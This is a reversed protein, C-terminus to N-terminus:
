PGPRLVFVEDRHGQRQWRVTFPDLTDITASVYHPSDRIIMDADTRTILGFWPYSAYGAPLGSQATTPSYGTAAPIRFLSPYNYAGWMIFSIRSDQIYHESLNAATILQTGPIWGAKRESWFKEAQGSMLFARDVTMPNLTPPASQAIILACSVIGALVLNRFLPRPLQACGWLGLVHLFFGIFLVERFGWRLNKFLPLASLISAVFAGRTALVCSLVVLGLVGWWLRSKHTCRSISCVQVFYAGSWALSAAYPAKLLFIRASPFVLAGAPAFVFSSVLLPFAYSHSTDNQWDTIESRPTSTFANWMTWLLPALILGAVLGGAAYRFLPFWSNEQWAAALSWLGLLLTSFILPHLHGCTIQFLWGLVVWRIGAQKQIVGQAIMSLGAMNALFGIWSSGVSLSYPNFMSSVAMVVIHCDHLGLRYRENLVLALRAFSATGVLLCSINLLEPIWIYYPTLALPSFLWLFPNFLQLGGPDRLLHYNGGFLYDNIFPNEGEWLKRCFETTVPLYGSLTDDTLFFCPRWFELLLSLVAALAVSFGV